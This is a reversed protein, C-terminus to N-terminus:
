VEDVQILKWLLNLAKPIHSSDCGLQGRIFTLERAHICNHM